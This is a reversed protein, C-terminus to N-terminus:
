SGREEKKPERINWKNRRWETRRLLLTVGEVSLSLDGRLGTQGSLLFLMLLAVDVVVNAM